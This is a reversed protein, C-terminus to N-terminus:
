KSDGNMKRQTAPIATTISAPTAPRPAAGDSLLRRTHGFLPKTWDIPPPIINDDYEAIHDVEDQLEKILDKASWDDVLTVNGESDEVKMPFGSDAIWQVAMYAVLSPETANTQIRTTWTVQYMGKPIIETNTKMM